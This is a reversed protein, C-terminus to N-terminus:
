VLDAVYTTPVWSRCGSGPIVGLCALVKVLLGFGGRMFSNKYGAKFDRNTLECRPFIIKDFSIRYGLTCRQCCCGPTTKMCVFLVSYTIPNKKKM